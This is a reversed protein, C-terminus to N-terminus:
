CPWGISGSMPCSKVETRLRQSKREDRPGPAKPLIPFPAKPLLLANTLQWSPRFPGLVTASPLARPWRELMGIARYLFATRNGDSTVEIMNVNETVKGLLKGRHLNQLDN